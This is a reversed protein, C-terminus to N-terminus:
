EKEKMCKKCLTNIWAGKTQSVDEMSGCIECTRSSIYEAFDVMNEIRVCSNDVYIRLTGFKEKVQSFEAQKPKIWEGKICTSYNDIYDQIAGCLLDIIWLWGDGCAIGWCMCTETMPKNRQVFLKPYKEILEQKTM